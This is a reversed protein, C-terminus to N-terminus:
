VMLLEVPRNQTMWRQYDEVQRDVEQQTWNLMNGMEGAIQRSISLGGDKTWFALGSRRVMFDTLTQAMEEKVAYRVEAAIINYGGYNVFASADQDIFSIINFFNSGYMGALRDQVGSDLGLRFGEVEVQSKFNQNIDGGSIPFQDSKSLPARNLPYRQKILELAADIVQSGMVRATTLKGGGISLLGTNSVFIQHDRSIKTTSTQNDEKILPRLGAWTSIVHDYTLKYDPLIFNAAELLYDIEEKTASVNEYSENYDSETTGIYVLDDYSSPIPWILRNDRPSRAFVAHHIPFDKKSVVLHVGKTPRMRNSKGGNELNNLRDLWVGTCNVVQKAQVVNTAGTISDHVEVGSVKGDKYTFGTVEMYNAAIAGGETASKLTDITLRADDTLSDFFMGAGKLGDSNLHPELELLKGSKLMRHRREKPNGSFLDYVTLGAKLKIMSEPYGNYILYLFSRPTTLHPALKMFMERERCAERVLKFEFQELYRLGGHVLKSSRSSTGSAFDGKELLCVSLGRLAADRAASVGTIGGGIILVDFKEKAIHDLKPRKM